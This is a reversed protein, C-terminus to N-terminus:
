DDGRRRSKGVQIAHLLRSKASHGNHRDFNQITLGDQDFRLWAVGRGAAVSAFGNWKMVADIGGPTMGAVHGDATARDAWEFFRMWMVAAADPSVQLKQATMVVEPKDAFGHEWKIWDGAM